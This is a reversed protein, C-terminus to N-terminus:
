KLDGGLSPTGFGSLSANSHSFYEGWFQNLADMTKGSRYSQKVGDTILGAGTVYIRAGSLDAFLNHTQAKKLEDAVVLNRIQNKAYFSTYDSNELMDSILFVVHDSAKDSAKIDEGIKRLANMIESRPIDERAERLSKVFLKGFGAEFNRPQSALCQDLTRLKRASADDRADEEAKKDLKGAYLLRLYEGPLFASFSYLKVSDGPQVFRSIQGWAQKQIDEPVPVTEDVVVILERGPAVPKLEPLQATDYCSQLDNRESAMAIGPMVLAALLLLKLGKM